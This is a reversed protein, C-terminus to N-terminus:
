RRHAPSLRADRMFDNFTQAKENKSRTRKLNAYTAKSTPCRGPPGRLDSCKGYYVVANLGRILRRRPREAFTFKVQLASAVKM